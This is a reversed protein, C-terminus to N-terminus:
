DCRITPPEDESQEAGYEYLTNPDQVIGRVDDRFQDRLWQLHNRDAPSPGSDAIRNGAANQCADPLTTGPRYPHTHFFIVGAPWEEAPPFPDASPPPEFGCPGPGGGAIDVGYQLLDYGGEGDPWFLAAEELPLSGDGQGEAWLQERLDATDDIEPEGTDCEPIFDLDPVGIASNEGISGSGNSGGSLPAPRILYSVSIGRYGGSRGTVVIPPLEVPEDSTTTVGDQRLSLAGACLQPDPFLGSCSGGGDGLSVIIDGEQMEYDEFEPFYDGWVKQWTISTSDEAIKVYYGINEEALAVSCFM